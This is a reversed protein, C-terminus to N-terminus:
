GAMLLRRRPTSRGRAGITVNRMSAQRLHELYQALAAPDFQQLFKPQVSTNHQRIAEILQRKDMVHKSDAVQPKAGARRGILVGSDRDPM